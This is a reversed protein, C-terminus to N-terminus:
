YDDQFLQSFTMLLFNEYLFLLQKEHLSFQLIQHPEQWQQHLMKVQLVNLFQHQMQKIILIM